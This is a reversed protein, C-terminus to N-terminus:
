CHVTQVVLNERAMKASRDFHMVTTSALPRFHPMAHEMVVAETKEAM